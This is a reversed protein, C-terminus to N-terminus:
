RFPTVTRFAATRVIFVHKDVQPIHHIWSSIIDHVSVRWLTEEVIERALCEAPTEGLELRGGPLEWENRHNRLLLVRGDNIVVGKVSIPLTLESM